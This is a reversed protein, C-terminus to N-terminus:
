NSIAEQTILKSIPLISWLQALMETESFQAAREKAAASMRRYLVEDLSLRHIYICLQEMQKPDVLYGEINHHVLEAPGGVPPAICPKAYHMAELITMGFTEIWEYPNSLNLVLDARQYFPHVNSQAPFLTLNAPLPHPDFYQEIATIDANLVLEFSFQPFRRALSVFTDVGKYGKLSCLMLITFNRGADAKTTLHLQSAQTFQSSLCNHVVVSDVTPIAEEEALYQSVFIVKNATYQVVKKLFVKLLAPRVSTEHLHYIVQKGMLRGALAAGFPLLTNVYIVVDQRAFQFLKFFLICQSWLYVLLRIWRNNKWRYAFHQYDVDLDSLFGEGGASCFLSVPINEERMGKLVTSLVLPSGSFDNLLHIAVIRM